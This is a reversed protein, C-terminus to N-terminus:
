PLELDVSYLDRNSVDKVLLISGDPTVGFSVGYAGTLVFDPYKVLTEVNGTAASWRCVGGKSGKASYYLNNFYVFKGDDSWRPYDALEDLVRTSHANMSYLVLEHTANNVAVVSRGDPSIQGYTLGDTGPVTAVQRRKVDLIRLDMGSQMLDSGSFLISGGDASWSPYRERQDSSPTAPVPLGGQSPILYIRSHSGADAVAHFAIQSGDPSWAPSFARMPPYTLQVRQSGDTRSRVLAGEPFEVYAMWQRDPSFVVHDASIGQSYPVFQKASADYRVLTGRLQDSVVFLRKGDKTPMALYFNFPGNTLQVPAPSSRHFFDSKERIAYINRAGENVATYFFYTGDSTWGASWPRAFGPLEAIVRRLSHNALDAEWLYFGPSGSDSASFRLRKGDPAWRLYFPEDPAVAIQGAHTGDIDARMLADGLSYAVSGGDPSWAAEHTRLGTPRPSGSPVPVRWLSSYRGASGEVQKSDGNNVGLFESASPSIDNIDLEPLPMVVPSVEGGSTSISAMERSTGRWLRFYIRPGDTILATNHVLTGIHTLQHIGTVRPAPTVPRLWYGVVLLLVALGVAIAVRVARFGPHAEGAQPSVMVATSEPRQVTREEILLRTRSHRQVVFAESEKVLRVSEAFRYGRGPITAIYRTTDTVGSNAALTKRLVFINQALNSEEVFTDPWVEKLLEDKLVVQQSNRVLVLLTDFAKLQLPIPENDRLLLRKEPDLRFPGFEFLEKGQDAM